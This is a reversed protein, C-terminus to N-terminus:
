PKIEGLLSLDDKNLVIITKDYRNIYVFDGYFSIFTDESIEESSKATLALNGDFRGLYHKGKEDLIVYIFGDRIEVFSRWFVNHEGNIKAALTDRDLITLRHGSSHSGLHTIVVVGGSFIDYRSGCINDVPSKLIIKRTAADIMYMENNYHGGELYEKIKLYYLKNAYINKDLEERLNDERKDLEKEKEILKVSAKEPDQKIDRKLEDREIEKKENELKKERDQIKQEKEAIDKEQQGIKEEKKKIEDEEATIKVKETEFQTEKEKLEKEKEERKQTDTIKKAEEKEKKLEEEKQKIDEKKQELPRKEQELKERETGLTGKDNELDKKDKEIKKEKIDAMDKRAPINDEDKRVEEITKRDSIIDPDVSDLKGKQSQETLPILIRTAGPWEWYKLSIGANKSNIYKMVVSKYRSSYYDVNGRYIANYYTLFLSIASADSGSYNYRNMLYSAIIRRVISIHGVKADKDISFIDASFKEPEEASFARIISYKLYYRAYIDEKAKISLIKGIYDIDRISDKNAFKQKNIFRVPKTRIEGIDVELGSGTNNTLIIILASLMMTLAKYKTLM